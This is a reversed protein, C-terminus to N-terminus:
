LNSRAGAHARVAGAACREHPNRSSQERASRRLTMSQLFATAPLIGSREAAGGPTVSLILIRGNAEVLSFGATALKGAELALLKEFAAAPMFYSHPDLSRLIGNIAARALQSYGVSDVYNSRVLNLADTLM